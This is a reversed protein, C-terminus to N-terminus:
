SSLGGDVAIVQGTIYSSNVLFWALEAVEEVTGFRQLPIKSMIGQKVDSSLGKTMDTDIFGPAIVNVRVGRSGLEKSLSKTFGILGSKSASYVSQGVNGTLGIVSGVNIICGKRKQIMGKAVARSMFISGALNTNIMESIDEDSARILLSDKSVGATNVLIDASQGFARDFHAFADTVSSRSSVDCRIGVHKQNKSIVPLSSAAKEVDAGRALVATSVGNSAFRNAIGLGIGRSAGTIIAIM